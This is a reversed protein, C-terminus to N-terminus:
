SKSLPHYESEMKEFLAVGVRAPSHPAVQRPAAFCCSQLANTYIGHDPFLGDSVSNASESSPLVQTEFDERELHAKLRPLM